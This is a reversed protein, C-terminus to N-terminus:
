IDNTKLYDRLQTRLDHGMNRSLDMIKKIEEFKINVENFMNTVANHRLGHIGMKGPVHEIGHAKNYTKIATRSMQEIDPGNMSVEVGDKYKCFLNDTKMMLKLFKIEDITRDKLSLKRVSGGNKHKRIVLQKNEIDVFNSVNDDVFKMNSLETLRIPIDSLIAFLCARYCRTISFKPTREREVIKDKNRKDMVKVKKHLDDYYYQYIADIDIEVLQQQKNQERSADAKEIVVKLHESLKTIVIDEFSLLKVFYNLYLKGTNLNLGDIFAIVREINNIFINKDYVVAEVNLYKYIARVATEVNKISKRATYIENMKLTIKEPFM